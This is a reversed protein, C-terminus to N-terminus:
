KKELIRTTSYGPVREFFKLEKAYQSGVVEKDRYDSGVVMIDPKVFKILSELQQKTHFIYVQDVCGLLGLFEARDNEDNFPRDPGKDIKVKLDSDIGVILIHGLSKAYNLLKLHQLHLVDFVGNVFVTKIDDVDIM